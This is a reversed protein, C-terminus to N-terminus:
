QDLVARQEKELVEDLEKEVDASLPSPVHLDLVAKTKERARQLLDKSGEKMWDGRSRRDLLDPIWHEKKFHKLTHSQTLFNGKPGVKSILDVALTEDDVEIGRLVYAIM